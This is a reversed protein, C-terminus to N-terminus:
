YNVDILKFRPTKPTQSKELNEKKLTQTIQTNFVKKEIKEEQKTFLSSALFFLIVIALIGAYFLLYNKIQGSEFPNDL